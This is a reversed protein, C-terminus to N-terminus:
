AADFMSFAAVNVGIGIALVLVALLTFGPARVLIRVGYGLDQLLRDLWTWGWAQYSRERMRLTNGFNNRGARAAMERHFEMDNQLENSLRRRNLLFHIRRFLEGM